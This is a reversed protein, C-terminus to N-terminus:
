QKVFWKSYWDLITDFYNKLDAPKIRNFRYRNWHKQNQFSDKFVLIKEIRSEYDEISEHPVDWGKTKVYNKTMLYFDRSYSEFLKIKSEPTVFYAAFGKTGMSLFGRLLTMRDRFAAIEKAHDAFEMPISEIYEEFSLKGAHQKGSTSRERDKTILYPKIFHAGETEFFDASACYIDFRSLENLYEVTRKTRDDVKDCFIILRFEGAQLNHTVTKIFDETSFEKDEESKNKIFHWEVAQSLSKNRLEEVACRNSNLYNRVSQDLVDYPLEWMNAAYELTQAVVKRIDFNKELKFEIITILGASDIGLLDISGVEKITFESGIVLLPKFEDDIEDIPIIEPFQKVFEQLDEEREITKSVIIETKQNRIKLLRGM